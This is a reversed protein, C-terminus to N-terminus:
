ILKKKIQELDKKKRILEQLVAMDQKAVAAAQKRELSDKALRYVSDALEKKRDEPSGERIAAGTECIEAALTQDNKDDFRSIIASPDIKGEKEFQSFVLEAVTRYTGEEFDEPGLYKRIVATMQPDDICRTLIIRQSKRVASDPGAAKQQGTREEIVPSVKPAAARFENQAGLKNVLSRFEKRDFGYDRCFADIYNTREIDESFGLIREAVETQFATKDQPDNLDHRAEMVKVEFVFSTSANRIREEYAEKGLAKIFEDPDKYPSMNLVKARIGAEALIPIARNAAAQGAGDSDYTIVVDKTYRSLLKAQMGTLSTGLSAVANDFGAQHLAITDMYGECLLMYPQRTKRALHLGYLNRGKDFIDTEPSNLYKPLADGMVRGGFAIVKGNRDFIPFMVRNFFKDNVGRREDYTFLGSKALFEDQYGEEKLYKYLSGDSYGIGFNKMTEPSLGRKEIYEKAFKGKESYFMRYYYTAAKKYLELMRERRDAAQKAEETMNYKPLTIGVRGALNEVAEPFTINEYEMLFTFVNGGKGCGFCKYTQRAPNVSFSPTKESHFPCLGQYNSGARKLSVYSGILGVIENRSRIEDILKEDYYM